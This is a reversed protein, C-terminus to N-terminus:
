GRKGSPFVREALSGSIERHRTPRLLQRGAGHRERERVDPGSGFESEAGQCADRGDDTEGCQSAGEFEASLRDNFSPTLRTGVTSFDRGPVSKKHNGKNFSRSEDKWIYYLEIPFEKNEALTLYLGASSETLENNEGGTLSTLDYRENGLTWDDEPRQYIGFVDLTNKREPPHQRPGCRFLDLPQRRRCHRRQLFTNLTILNM